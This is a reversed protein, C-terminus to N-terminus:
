YLSFPFLVSRISRLFNKEDASSFEGKDDPAMNNLEECVELVKSIRTFDDDLATSNAPFGFVNCMHKFINRLETFLIRKVNKSTNSYYVRLVDRETIVHVGELYINCDNESKTM